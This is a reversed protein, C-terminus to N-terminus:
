DTYWTKANGMRVVSCIYNQGNLEVVDNVSICEYKDEYDGHDHTWIDGVQISSKLHIQKKYYYNDDTSISHGYWYIADQEIKLLYYMVSIPRKAVDFKTEVLKFVPIHEQEYEIVTDSIIKTSMTSSSVLIGNEYKEVIYEWFNGTKIPLLDNGKIQIDGHNSIPDNIRSCSILFTLLIILSSFKMSAREAYNYKEFSKLNIHGLLM